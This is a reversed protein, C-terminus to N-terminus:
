CRISTGCNCDDERHGVGGGGGGFFIVSVIRLWLRVVTRCLGPLLAEWKFVTIGCQLKRFLTYLAIHLFCSTYWQCSNPDTRSPWERAHMYHNYDVIFSCYWCYDSVFYAGPM